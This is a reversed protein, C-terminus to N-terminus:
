LNRQVTGTVMDFVQNVASHQETRIDVVLFM